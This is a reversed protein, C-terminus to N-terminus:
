RSRSRTPHCAESRRGSAGNSGVLDPVFAEMVFRGGRALSSAVNAFGRVQDEQTILGFFTNFAVFVLSHPGGLEAGAFDGITIPISDGGPKACLEAVMAQSSDVGHVDVGRQILPLAIRGTGIGLELVSGGGALEDLCEAALEASGDGPYMDDYIEGIRDGYEAPDHESM